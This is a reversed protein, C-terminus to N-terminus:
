AARSLAGPASVLAPDGTMAIPEPAADGEHGVPGDTKAPILTIANGTLENVLKQDPGSYRRVVGERELARCIQNVQQRPYVQALASLRDDDLPRGGRRLAELIRHRNSAVSM